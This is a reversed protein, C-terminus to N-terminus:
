RQTLSFSVPARLLENGTERGDAIEFHKKHQPLRKKRKHVLDDEVRRGILQSGIAVLWDRVDTHRIYISVVQLGM